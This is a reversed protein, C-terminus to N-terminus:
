EKFKRHKKRIAKIIDRHFDKWGKTGIYSNRLLSIEWSGKWGNKLAILYKRIVDETLPGQESKLISKLLKLFASMGRNTFIIYKDPDNWEEPFISKLLSFYM